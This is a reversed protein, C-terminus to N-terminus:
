RVTKLKEIVRSNASGSSYECGERGSDKAIANNTEESRKSDIWTLHDVPPIQGANRNELAKVKVCRRVV